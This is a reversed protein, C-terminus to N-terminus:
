RWRIVGTLVELCIGLLLVGLLVAAVLPFIGPEAPALRAVPAAHAGDLLAIAALYVGLRAMTVLAVGVRRM